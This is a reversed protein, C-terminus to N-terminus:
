LSWNWGKRIKKYIVLNSLFTSNIGLNETERASIYGNNERAYNLFRIMIKKM